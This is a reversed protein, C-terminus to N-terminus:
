LCSQRIKGPLSVFGRALRLVTRLDEGSLLYPHLLLFPTVKALSVLEAAGVDGIFKVNAFGLGFNVPSLSLGISAAGGVSDCGTLTDAFVGFFAALNPLGHAILRPKVRAYQSKLFSAISIDKRLLERTFGAIVGASALGPPRVGYLGLPKSMVALLGQLNRNGGTIARQVSANSLKRLESSIDRFDLLGKNRAESIKRRFVASDLGLGYSLGIGFPLGVLEGSVGLSVSLEEGGYEANNRCSLSQLLTGELEVGIDSQISYIPACFLGLRNEHVAFEALWGKGVGFFASGEVGIGKKNLLRGGTKKILKGKARLYGSTVSFFEELKEASDFFWNNKLVLEDGDNSPSRLAFEYTTGVLCLNRSDKDSSKELCRHLVLEETTLKAELGSLVPASPTPVHACSLTFIFLFVLNLFRM